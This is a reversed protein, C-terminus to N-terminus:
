KIKISKSIYYVHVKHDCIQYLRVEVLKILLTFAVFCFIPMKM